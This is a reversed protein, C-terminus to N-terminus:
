ERERRGAGEGGFGVPIIEPQLLFFTIDSIQTPQILEAVYKTESMRRGDDDTMMVEERVCVWRFQYQINRGNPVMGFLNTAIENIGCDM